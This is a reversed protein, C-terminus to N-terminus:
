QSKSIAAQQQADLDQSLQQLRKKQETISKFMKDYTKQETESLLSNPIGDLRNKLQTLDFKLLELQESTATKNLDSAKKMLNSLDGQIRRFNQRSGSSLDEHLNNIAYIADNRLVLDKVSLTRADIKLLEEKIDQTQKKLTKLEETNLSSLDYIDVALAHPLKAQIKRLKEQAAILAGKSVASTVVPVSSTAAAERKQESKTPFSFGFTRSSFPASSQGMAAKLTNFREEAKILNDYIESDVEPGKERVERQAQKYVAEAKQLERALHHTEILSSRLIVENEMERIHKIVQEHKIETYVKPDKKSLLGEKVSQIKKELEEVSLTKPNGLELRVEVLALDREVNKIMLDLLATQKKNLKPAPNKLENLQGRLTKLQEQLAQQNEAYEGNEVYGKHVASSLTLFTGKFKKLALRQQKVETSTETAVLLGLARLPSVLTATFRSFFSPPKTPQLEARPSVASDASDQRVQELPADLAQGVVTMRGTANVEAEESVPSAVSKQAAEPAKKAEEANYKKLEEEDIIMSRYLSSEASTSEPFDPVDRPPNIVAVHNNLSDEDSIDSVVDGPQVGTSASSSRRSSALDNAVPEATRLAQEAISTESTINAVAATSSPQQYSAADFNLVSNADVPGVGERVTIEAQTPNEYLVLFTNLYNTAARAYILVEALHQQPNEVKSKEIFFNGFEAMYSNDEITNMHQQYKEEAAAIQTESPNFQGKEITHLLQMLRDRLKQADVVYMADGADQCSGGIALMDRTLSKISQIRNYNNEHILFSLGAARELVEQLQEENLNPDAFNRSLAELEQVLADNNEPETIDMNVIHKRLDRLFLFPLQNLIKQERPSLTESRASFDALLSLTTSYADLFERQLAM